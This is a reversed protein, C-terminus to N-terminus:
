KVHSSIEGHRREVVLPRRRGHGDGLGHGPRPAPPREPAALEARPDAVLRTDSRRWASEIPTSREDLWAAVDRSLQAHEIAIELWGRRAAPGGRPSPEAGHARALRV